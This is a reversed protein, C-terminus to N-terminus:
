IIMKPVCIDIPYDTYPQISIHFNNLNIIELDNQNGRLMVVAHIVIVSRLTNLM